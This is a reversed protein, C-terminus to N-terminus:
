LRCWNSARSKVLDHIPLVNFRGLEIQIQIQSEIIETYTHAAHTLSSFLTLLFFTPVPSLQAFAAYRWAVAYTVM